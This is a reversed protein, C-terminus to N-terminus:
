YILAKRYYNYKAIIFAIMLKPTSYIRSYVTHIHIFNFLINLKIYLM